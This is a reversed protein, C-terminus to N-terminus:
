NIVGIFTIEAGTYTFLNFEQLEVCGTSQDGQCTVYINYFGPSGEIRQGEVVGFVERDVNQEAGAGDVQRWRLTIIECPEGTPFEPTEIDDLPSPATDNGNPDDPYPPSVQLGETPPVLPTKPPPNPPANPSLDNEDCFGLEEGKLTLILASTGFCEFRIKNCIFSNYSHGVIPSPISIQSSVCKLSVLLQAFMGDYIHFAQEIFNIDYTQLVYDDICFCVHAYFSKDPNFTFNRSPTKVERVVRTFLYINKASAYAIPIQIIGKGSVLREVSPLGPM